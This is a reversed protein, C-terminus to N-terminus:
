AEFANIQDVVTQATIATSDYHLVKRLKTAWQPYFERILGAMQGDRNQEVVYVVEHGEIFAELEPTFPLARVRLYDTEKGHQEVLIDRAEAVAPDSSGYALIGRSVGPGTLLPKPVYDRATMFKRKLRDVTAKFEDPKESYLAYPNHGTGRTFYAGKGGPTGPLTRYCIGDGDVDKYRGWDVVAKLGAEDLVKGRDYRSEPYAFPESAWNQMGLDLDSVVFVPTQFREALDFAQYTFQFCEEMTGPYLCIHLTDGHSCKACLEVDGQSTRTPLGTSPGMRTVNVFVGPCEAFYGLGIFESMLSIGPGSTATMARAGAWGAGVVVGASAIEDEMQVIAVNLRGTEPDRRHEKSYDILQEVVSSSPTIPYWAVVTVGAFMAGLACATNGDIIIQGQTRDLREIRLRTQRPAEAQAWDFGAQVAAQNLDIAKQKGDLQKAIARKVEDMDLGIMQAAVGVYVMNKVLKHLKPEPCSAAVLKQFPVACFALDNRLDSLKLPEDYILVTGPAVKAVDEKATEPNMCIMLDIGAKRAKYGRHNARIQFWTPLGAINSPFLNKGTVPVGMQFITRMLVTNATQSGSGNVTAVEISFDNVLTGGGVCESTSPQTLM